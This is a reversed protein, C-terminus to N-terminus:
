PTLRSPIDMSQHLVRIIEIDRERHRFFIVHAGVWYKRYGPRIDEAPMGVHRGEALGAFADVVQRVYADAQRRSWQKRTYTWIDELDLRALPSLSYGTDTPM